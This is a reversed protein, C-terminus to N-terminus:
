SHNSQVHLSQKQIVDHCKELPFFFTTFFSSWHVNLTNGDNETYSEHQINLYM